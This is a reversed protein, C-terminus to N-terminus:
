GLDAEYEDGLRFATDIRRLHALRERERESDDGSPRQGGADGREHAGIRIIAGRNREARDSDKSQRPM